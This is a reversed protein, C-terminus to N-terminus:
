PAGRGVRRSLGAMGFLGLFLSMVTLSIASVITLVPRYIEVLELENMAQSFILTNVVPFSTKGKCVLDLSLFAYGQIKESSQYIFLRNFSIHTNKGDKWVLNV